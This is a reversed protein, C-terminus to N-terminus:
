RCSMAAPIVVVWIASFCPLAPRLLMRMASIAAPSGVQWLSYKRCSPSAQGMVSDGIVRRGTSGAIGLAVVASRWFRGLAGVFVRQSIARPANNGATM